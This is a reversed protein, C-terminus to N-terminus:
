DAAPSMEEGEVSLCSESLVPTDVGQFCRQQQQQQPSQDKFHQRHYGNRVTFSVMEGADRVTDAEATNHISPLKDAKVKINRRTPRTITTSARRTPSGALCASVPPPALLPLYRLHPPRHVGGLRQAKTTVTPSSRRRHQPMTGDNRVLPQQRIKRPRREQFRFINPPPQRPSTTSSTRRQPSRGSRRVSTREQVQQVANSKFKKKDPRDSHPTDLNSAGVLALKRNTRPLEGKKKAHDDETSSLPQRARRSADTGSSADLEFIGSPRCQRIKAGEELTLIPFPDQHSTPQGRCKWRPAATYTATAIVPMGAGVLFPTSASRSRLPQLTIESSRDKVSWIVASRSACRSQLPLSLRLPTAMSQEGAPAHDDKQRCGLARREFKASHKGSTADVPVFASSLVDITQSLSRKGPRSPKRPLSSCQRAISNIKRAVPTDRTSAAIRTASVALPVGVANSSGICDLKSQSTALAGSNSEKGIQESQIWLRASGCADCREAHQPNALTCRSCAWQNDASTTAIRLNQAQLLTGSTPGATNAASGGCDNTDDTHEHDLSRHPNHSAHVNEGMRYAWASSSQASKKAQQSYTIEPPSSEGRWTVEKNDTTSGEVATHLKLCDAATATVGNDRTHHGVQRPTDAPVQTYGGVVGNKSESNHCHSGRKVNGSAYVKLTDTAPCSDRLGNNKAQAYSLAASGEKSSKVAQALLADFRGLGREHSNELRGAAAGGDFHHGGSIGSDFADGGGEGRGFIHGGAWAPADFGVGVIKSALAREEEGEIAAAIVADCDGGTRRHTEGDRRPVHRCCRECMETRTGCLIQHNNTAGITQFSLGCYMCQLRAAALIPSSPGSPPAVQCPSCSAPPLRMYKWEHNDHLHKGNKIGDRGLSTTSVSSSSSAPYDYSEDDTQSRDRGHEEKDREPSEGEEREKRRAHVTERVGGSESSRECGGKHQAIHRSDRRHCRLEHVCINTKPVHRGCVKCTIEVDRSTLIPQLKASHDVDMVYVRKGTASPIISSGDVKQHEIESAIIAHSSRRKDADRIAKRSTGRIGESRVALGMENLAVKDRGGEGGGLVVGEGAFPRCAASRSKM